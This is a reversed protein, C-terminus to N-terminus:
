PLIRRVKAITELSGYPQYGSYNMNYTSYFREVYKNDPEGLVSNVRKEVNGSSYDSDEKKNGWIDVKDNSMVGAIDKANGGIYNMTNEMGAAFAARGTVSGGGMASTLGVAGLSGTFAGIAGGVPGGIAEGVIQGGLSMVSGAIKANRTARKVSKAYQEWNRTATEQYQQMRELGASYRYAYGMEAALGSDINSIAGAASSTNIGEMYNSFELQQRAMREQRINQLLDKGFEMLQLTNQEQAAQSEATLARSKAAKNISFLGM